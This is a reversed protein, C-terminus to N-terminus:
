KNFDWTVNEPDTNNPIVEYYVDDPTGRIKLSKVVIASNHQLTNARMADVKRELESIKRALEEITM